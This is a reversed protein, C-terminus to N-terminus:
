CGSRIMYHSVAFVYFSLRNFIQIKAHKVSTLSCKSGKHLIKMHLATLFPSPARFEWGAGWGPISDFSKLPMPNSWSQKMKWDTRDQSQNFDEPGYAPRFIWPALLIFTLKEFAPGDSFSSPPPPCISRGWNKAPISAFGERRFSMPYSWSKKM